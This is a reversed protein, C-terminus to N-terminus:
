IIFRSIIKYRKDFRFLTLILAPAVYLLFRYIILTIWQAFSTIGETPIKNWLEDVKLLAFLTTIGFLMLLDLIAGLIKLLHFRKKSSMKKM